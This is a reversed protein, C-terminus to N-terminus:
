MAYTTVTTYRTEANEYFTNTILNIVDLPSM